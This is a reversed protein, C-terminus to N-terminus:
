GMMGGGGRQRDSMSNTWSTQGKISISKPPDSIRFQETRPQCTEEFLCKGGFTRLLNKEPLLLVGEERPLDALDAQCPLMRKVPTAKGRNRTECVRCRQVAGGFWLFGHGFECEYEVLNTKCYERGVRYLLFDLECPSSPATAADGKRWEEWVARWAQASMSDICGYQYCFIDLFSSLLPIDTQLIRARLAVKMTNIDSAVDIQDYRALKPWVRLEVMDRIFMHAKKAGYGINPSGILTEAITLADNGFKDAIQFATIENDLLFGAANKAFDLRKDSQSLRTAGIFKLFADPQNYISTSDFHTPDELYKGYPDKPPERFDQNATFFRVQAVAQNPLGQTEHTVGLIESGYNRVAQSFCQAAKRAQERDIRPNLIEAHNAQWFEHFESFYQFEEGGVTTTGIGSFTQYFYENIQQLFRRSVEIDSLKQWDKPLVIGIHKGLREIFEVVSTV